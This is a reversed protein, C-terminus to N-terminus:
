YGTFFDTASACLAKNNLEIEGIVKGVNKPDELGIREPNLNKHLIDGSGDIIFSDVSYEQLVTAMSDIAYGKGAAGVDLVVPKLTTLTTQNRIM